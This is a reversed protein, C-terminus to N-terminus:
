QYVSSTQVKSSVSVPPNHKCYDRIAPLPLTEIWLNLLALTEAVDTLRLFGTVFYFIFFPGYCSSIPATSRPTVVLSPTRIRIVLM